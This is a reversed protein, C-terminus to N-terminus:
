SGPIFQTVEGSEASVVIGFHGGPRRPLDLAMVLLNCANQTITFESNKSDLKSGRKNGERIALAKLEETGWSKKSRPCAKDDFSFVTEGGAFSCANLSLCLTLAIASLSKITPM